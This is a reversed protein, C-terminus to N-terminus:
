ITNQTAIQGFQYEIVKASTLSQTSFIDFVPDFNSPDNYEQNM